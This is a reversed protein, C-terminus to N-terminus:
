TLRFVTCWKLRWRGDRHTFVFYGQPGAHIDGPGSHFQVCATKGDISYGPLSVNLYARVDPYKRGFEGLFNSIQEVYEVSVRAISPSYTSLSANKKSNRRAWCLWIEKSLADPLEDFPPRLSKFEEWDLRKNAEGGPRTFAEPRERKSIKPLVVLRTRGGTFAKFDQDEAVIRLLADLVHRDTETFVPEPDDEDPRVPLPAQSTRALAMVEADALPITKAGEGAEIRISEERTQLEAIRAQEVRAVEADHRIKMRLIGIVSAVLAALVMLQYIRFQFRPM